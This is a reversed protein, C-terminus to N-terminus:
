QTGGDPVYPKYPMLLYATAVMIAAIDGGYVRNAFYGLVVLGVINALGNM